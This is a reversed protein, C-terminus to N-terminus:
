RQWGRWAIYRRFEAEFAEAPIGIAAEFATNFLHGDGMVALLRAVREDGYRDLLFQFALHAADYVLEEDTQYLPDPDTIPDGKPRPPPPGGGTAGDGSGPVATARAYFRWVPEPGERRHGQGAAVSAMGERFWLPIGKYQWSWESGAAQYMVCHTLEHALLEEVQRRDVGFLLSWTRPSQLDITGFRAWAKLWAYGDRHVAAELAEHTPHIFITIPARLRGWRQARPVAGELAQAVLQASAEDEPRYELRIAAAGVTVTQSRGADPGGARHACASSALLVLVAAVARM